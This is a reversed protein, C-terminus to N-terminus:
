ALLLELAGGVGLIPQRQQALERVQVAVAEAVVLLRRDVQVGNQLVIRAVCRGELGVGLV